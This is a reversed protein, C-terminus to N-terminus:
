VDTLSYYTLHCKSEYNGNERIGRRWAVLLLFTIPSKLFEINTLRNQSHIYMRVKFVINKIDYLAPDTTTQIIATITTATLM